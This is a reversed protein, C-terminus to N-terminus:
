GYGLGFDVGAHLGQGLFGADLDFAELGVAFAM